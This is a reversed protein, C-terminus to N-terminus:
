HKEAFSALRFPLGFRRAQSGFRSAFRRAQSGLVM